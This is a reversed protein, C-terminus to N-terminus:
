RPGYPAADYGADRAARLVLHPDELLPSSLACLDARGAAVLTNAEDASRLGAQVLVPLKAEFRLREAIPAHAGPAMSTPCLLHLLDVGRTRLLRALEVLEGATADERGGASLLASLPRQEGWGRRVAELAELHGGSRRLFPSLEVALLDFGAEAAHAAARSFDEWKKAPGAHGLVLCVKARSRGHIFDVIRRWASAHEARYIGASGATARGDASIATVETCVLGVGGQARSGLHVLQADGVTGNAAEELGLPALAIRNALALGRLEFPTFIPPPPSGDSARPAKQRDAMWEDLRRIFAPDRKRLTEHTRKARTLLNFALQIPEQELYRSADEFWELSTQSTRQAREVEPRRAAEYAALARPVDNLGLERFAAVLAIGDEMAMKTGSGISFHATHAADGLLVVREHHWRESRVIPFARWSSRNTLLKAGQLEEAFLRECFAVTDAEMARELGARRWVEERCEVVFTSSRADSPYAHVQFLGHPSEKLIFTLARLPLTSGMWCYRCRRWDLNPGLQASLQDRVWSGIGDAGIILDVGDLQSLTKVERQFELKVGVETCRAHLVGLLERRPLGCLGHGASTIRQGRFRVEVEDWHAFRESLARYTKPDAAGINGLTEHSFVVGWGQTEDPRNRELVTIEARPFASKMLVGFFLGAPGGGM